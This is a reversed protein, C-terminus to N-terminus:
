ASAPCRGWSLCRSSCSSLIRRRLLLRRTPSLRPTLAQCASNIAPSTFRRCSAAPRLSEARPVCSGSSAPCLLHVCRDYNPATSSSRPTAATSPRSRLLWRTFYSGYWLGYYYLYVLFIYYLYVLFIVFFLFFSVGTDSHSHLLLVSGVRQFLALEVFSQLRLAQCLRDRTHTRQVDSQENM